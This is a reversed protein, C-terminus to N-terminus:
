FLSQELLNMMESMAAVDNQRGDAAFVNVLNHLMRAIWQQHTAVRLHEDAAMVPRGIAMSIRGFADEPTLLQGDFFPDVYM